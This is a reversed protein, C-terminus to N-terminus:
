ISIAIIVDQHGIDKAFSYTGEDLIAVIDNSEDLFAPSRVRKLNKLISSSLVKQVTAFNNTIWYTRLVSAPIGKAQSGYEIVKEFFIEFEKHLIDRTEFHLM